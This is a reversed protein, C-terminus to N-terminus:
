RPLRFTKVNQAQIPPAQCHKYFSAHPAREDWELVIAILFRRDWAQSKVGIVKEESQGGFLTHPIPLRFSWQDRKAPALYSRSIGRHYCYANSRDFHVSGVLFTKKERERVRSLHSSYLFTSVYSASQLSSFRVGDKIGFKSIKFPFSVLSSIIKKFQKNKWTFFSKAFGRRSIHM